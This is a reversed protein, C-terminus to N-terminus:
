FKYCYLKPALFIAEKALHELKLKGLENNNVLNDHLPKDLYVSDTDTYFLKYNTNNKFQSMHIRACATITSAIAININHTESGNDLITHINQETSKELLVLYKDELPLVDLISINTNNEIQKLEKKTLILISNFNDNMGFRGYLSNMIIKSIYNMPNNKPYNLRIKYLDNIFDKFPYGKKFQYGKIIEFKYGFKIANDLELSNIWDYWTGKPSITRIINNTKVHTQLIPHQLHDPAVIKCFFIGFAHPNILPINGEFYVPSGLPMPFESM